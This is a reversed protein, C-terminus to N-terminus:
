RTASGGPSPTLTVSRPWPFEKLTTPHTHAPRPPAPRFTPPQGTIAHVLAAILDRAAPPTVANGAQRVRERRSGLIQYDGPFAMGAQIEAPELMRFTCDLPDVSAATTPRLVAFRDRTSLTGM